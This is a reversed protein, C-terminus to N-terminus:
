KIRVHKGRTLQVGEITEGASLQEKLLTKDLVKEIKEYFYKEPITKEDAITLTPQSNNCVSISFMDTKIKEKNTAIMAEKLNEKLWKIKNEINDKREQLRKIEEDLIEINHNQQIIIKAYNEAKIDIADSISEITDKLDEYSYDSDEILEQLKLYSQKLEYLNM